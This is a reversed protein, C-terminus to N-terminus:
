ESCTSDPLPVGTLAPTSEGERRSDGSLRGVLASSKLSATSITDSSLLSDRERERERQRETQRQRDTQRDTQRSNNHDRVNRM